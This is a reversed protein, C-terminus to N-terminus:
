SVYYKQLLKFKAESVEMESSVIMMDFIIGLVETPLIELCCSVEVFIKQWSPFMKQHSFPWGLHQQIVILYSLLGSFFFFFFFVFFFFPVSSLLLLSSVETGQQWLPM